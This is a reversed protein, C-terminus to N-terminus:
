SCVVWSAAASSTAPVFFPEGISVAFIAAIPPTL